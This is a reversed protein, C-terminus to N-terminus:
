ISFFPDDIHMEVISKRYDKSVSISIAGEAELTTAQAGQTIRYKTIAGDKPNEVDVVEGYQEVVMPREVPDGGPYYEGTFDAESM